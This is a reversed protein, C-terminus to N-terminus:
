KTAVTHIMGMTLIHTMPQPLTATTHQITLITIISGTIVTKIPNGPTLTNLLQVKMHIIDTILLVKKLTVMTTRPTTQNLLTAMLIIGTLHSLPRTAKIRHLQTATTRCLPLIQHQLTATTCYLPLIRHLPIATIHYPLLLKALIAMITVMIQYVPIIMILYPQTLMIQYLLMGTILYLPIARFQYLLIARFQNLLIAKHLNPRTALMIHTIQINLHIQRMLIDTMITQVPQTAQHITHITCKIHYLRTGKTLYLPIAKHHKLPTMALTIHTTMQINLHIQRMLIDRMTTQVTAVMTHAILRNHNRMLISLRTHIQSMRTTIDMDIKKSMMHTLMSTSITKPSLTKSNIDKILTPITMTTSLAMSIQRKMVSM